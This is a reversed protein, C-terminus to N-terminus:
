FPSLILEISCGLHGLILKLFFWTKPGIKVWKKTFFFGGNLAKKAGKSPRLLGLCAKVLSLESMHNCYHM